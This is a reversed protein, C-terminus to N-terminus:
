LAAFVVLCELDHGGVGRLANSVRGVLGDSSAPWALAHFHGGREKKSPTGGGEKGSFEKAARFKYFVSSSPM